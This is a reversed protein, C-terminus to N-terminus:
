YFGMITKMQVKSIILSISCREMHKNVMQKDEESFHRNLDEEWKKIKKKKKQQAAHATQINPLNIRQEDGQKCVNEGM